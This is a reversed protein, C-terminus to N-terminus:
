IRIKINEENDIENVIDPYKDKLDQVKQRLKSYLESIDESKSHNIPLYNQSFDTYSAIGEVLDYSKSINIIKTDLMEQIIKNIPLPIDEFNPQEEAQCAFLMQNFVEDTNDNSCRVVFSPNSNFSKNFELHISDKLYLQNIIKLITDLNHQNFNFSIYPRSVALRQSINNCHGACCAITTINNSFYYLLLNKLYKNGESFAEAAQEWHEQPIEKYLKGANYNTDFIGM